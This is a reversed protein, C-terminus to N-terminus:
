LPLWSGDEDYDAPEDSAVVSRVRGVKPLGCVDCPKYPDVTCTHPGAAASTPETM